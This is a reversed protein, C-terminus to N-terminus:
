DMDFEIEKNNYEEIQAKLAQLDTFCRFEHDRLPCETCSGVHSCIYERQKDTIYKRKLKVIMDAEMYDM